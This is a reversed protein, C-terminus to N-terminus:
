IIAGIIRFVSDGFGPITLNGDTKVWAYALSMVGIVILLSPFWVVTNDARATFYGIM